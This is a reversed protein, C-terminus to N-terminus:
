FNDMFIGSSLLLVYMAYAVSLQHLYFSSIYMYIKANVDWLIIRPIRHIFNDESLIKVTSRSRTQIPLLYNESVARADIYFIYIVHKQTCPSKM